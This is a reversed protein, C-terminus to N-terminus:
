GPPVVLGLEQVVGALLPGWAARGRFRIGGADAGAHHAGPLLKRLLQRAVQAGQGLLSHWEGLRRRLAARDLAVADRAPSLAAIEALLARERVKVGGLAARLEEMAVGDGVAQVYRGIRLQVERLEAELHGRRDQGQVVAAAHRAVTREVVATLVDEALVDHAITGLIAQELPELRARLGHACKTAGRTRHTACGYYTLPVGCSPQKSVNVSGGCAECRLFGTLLYPSEVHGEPRGILRGDTLRAYVARTDALRRHAAEWLAEDVIRLAPVEIAIWEGAPVRVKRKTGKRREWRTKGYIQRGQYLPRMVLERVGSGAWGRRTPSLVGDANLRKAIRCFGDGAAVDRFIRRIVEAQLPHVVREVHDAVRRNEYGYVTGGAVHGREAKRRMADRTRQVAQERHMGDVYAMASLMFQDTETAGHIESDTLYCFVRVDADIIRGLAYPVERTSRGLRSQDMLILVQFSPRTLARMLRSM